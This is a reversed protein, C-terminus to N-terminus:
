QFSGIATTGNVAIKMANTVFGAIMGHYNPEIHTGDVPCMWTTGTFPIASAMTTGPDIVFTNVDAFATVAAKIPASNQADGIQGGPPILVFIKTTPMAIRAAQLWSLEAAQVQTTTFSGRHDNIGWAEILYDPATTFSKANVSDFMNWWSPGAPAGGTTSTQTALLGTGGYGLQGFEFGMAYSVMKPWALSADVLQYYTTTGTSGGNVPFGGFFSQLYSDGVIYATKAAIAPASLVAASSFELSNIKTWYYNSAWGDQRQYGGIMELRYRHSATTLGTALTVQTAGVPFQVLVPPNDDITVKITPMDGSPAGTDVTSTDINAIIQTTGSVVGKLYAGGTPAIISTGSTRWTYPSLYINASPFTVVVDTPAGTGTGTLAATQPSGTANDAVSVSASRTGNATPSFTVVINCSASAALTSGCTTTKGFDATNAGTISISSINLTSTGGNTMVVTQPSSSSGFATSGFTLSTPSFTVSAVAVIPDSGATTGSVTLPVGGVQAAVSSGVLDWENLLGSSAAVTPTAFTALTTIEGATLVRNWIGVLAESGRQDFGGAARNGVSWTTPPATWVLPTAGSDALKVGNLYIQLFGGSQWTITIVSWANTPLTYTGAAASASWMTGSSNVYQFFLENANAKIVSFQSPGGSYEEMIIHFLGDNQSYTPFIAASASGTSGLATIVATATNTTATYTLSAYASASALLLLGILKRM